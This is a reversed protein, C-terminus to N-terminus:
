LQAEIEPLWSYIDGAGMVLVLDNPKTHASIYQLVDGRKPAYFVDKQHQKVERHMREGDFSPIPKERASPYIDTLVVVDAAQFATAFEGLLAQTRTYTHPQFVAIIRRDPFWSRAATLTAKIEAPHHAYDDYLLKGNKESILEFRRKTGIFTSLHQSIEQASLGLQSLAAIAAAANFVNHEGPIQLSFRGLIKGKHTV